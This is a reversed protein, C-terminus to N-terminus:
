QLKNLVRSLIISAIIRKSVNKRVEKLNYVIGYDLRAKVVMWKYQEYLRVGHDDLFLYIGNKANM